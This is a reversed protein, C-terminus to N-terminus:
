RVWHQRSKSGNVGSFEIASAENRFVGIPYIETRHHVVVTFYKRRDLAQTTRERSRIPRNLITELPYKLKQLCKRENRPIVTEDAQTRNHVVVTFDKRSEPTPTM